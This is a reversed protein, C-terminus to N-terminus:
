FFFFGYEVTLRKSMNKKEKGTAIGRWPRLTSPHFCSVFVKVDEYNWAEKNTAAALDDRGKRGNLFFSPPRRNEGTRERDERERMVVILYVCFFFFFFFFFESRVGSKIWTRGSHKESMRGALSPSKHALSKLSPCLCLYVPMICRSLVRQPSSLFCDWTNASDDGGARPAIVISFASREKARLGSQGYTNIFKYIHIFICIHLCAHHVTFASQPSPLFCDMHQGLRRKGCRSSLFVDRVKARLGSKSGSRSKNTGIIHLVVIRACM